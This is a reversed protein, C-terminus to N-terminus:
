KFPLMLQTLSTWWKKVDTHVKTLVDALQCTTPVWRMMKSNGLKHGWVQAEAHLLQRLAALDVMLRKEAPAKPGSIRHVSDFLSKCDTCSVVPLVERANAESLPIGRLTGALMARFAIADEWGELSAMTEAAFTSRCVRPCAHSKWSIVVPQVQEGRLVNRHCVLVLHGLQSYLGNMGDVYEIDEADAPANAWAADHFVLIVLDDFPGSQTFSLKNEKGVQAMKVVKNTERVDSFCPQKQKRQALSVGAQLDPRSQSALWSLAGITSQNDIKSVVDAPSAIDIGKPIDVTELRSNVYSEQSVHIGHEDQTIQSGVYEFDDEEWESIPFIAALNQKLQQLTEPAAALLLDDVHTLLAGHLEGQGDRLLFYCADLEHQVLKLKVGNVVIDLETLDRSLREWWLRPSTCLGFVGKIVEILAGEEVGPLGRVPQSFYLNRRAEDGNLFAAEIDGASLKWGKQGAVFMMTSFALRTGTPAETQLLGARLDPDRHGGICLRAKAKPPLNPDVRRKAVHKDRYAYRSTLIREKPVTARIHDSEEKSLVRVAQYKVHENWQKTEAAVYYEKEHEPIENWRVEKDLQKQFAKPMRVDEEIAELATAMLADQEGGQQDAAQPPSIMPVSMKTRARKAPVLGDGTADAFIEENEEDEDLQNVLKMLDEKMAKAQMLMGLEESEAHRLHERACLMCRGGRSVWFSDGEVGVITGPGVWEGAGPKLRAAGGANKSKRYVYVWDGPEFNSKLTRPRGLLARRLAAEAQSKIFAERAVQRINLQRARAEDPTALLEREMLQADEDLLGDGIRPEAGFVWKSPSYGHKRRMTNKSHCVQQLTWEVDDDTIACQDIVKEWINRFWANQREVPGNKWHAQGAVYEVRIGRQELEDTFEKMLGREQDVLVRHPAGAWALWGDLFAKALDSSKRGPLLRVVHYGSAIDLISIVNLKTKAPTHLVMTDIGLEHGFDMSVMVKAPRRTGPNLHRECVGCRLQHAAKVVEEKAGSLRLHRALDARRPHGLNQHLRRLAQATHKGVHPPFTIGTAEDQLNPDEPPVDGGSDPVAIGEGMDVDGDDDMPGRPAKAPTTPEYDGMGDDLPEEWGAEAMAQDFDPPEVTQTPYSFWPAGSGIIHKQYCKVVAMCFKESYAGAAKTNQGATPTHEHSHDCLKGLDQFGGHTCLLSTPKKLLGGDSVARLNFRCMDLDVFHFRPDLVLEQFSEDVWMDSYKPHEFVVEGGNALQLQACRKAFRVLKRQLARARRLAQAKGYYNLRQWPSWKTCPLAIWLVRPRHQSIDDLVKEQEEKKTLDHGFKVDRPELVTLGAKAFAQTLHATGAFLELLDVTNETVYSCQSALACVPATCASVVVCLAALAKSAWGKLRKRQVRRVRRKPLNRVAEYDDGYVLNVKPETITENESEVEKVAEYEIHPDGGAEYNDGDGIIAHNVAKYDQADKPDIEAGSGGIGDETDLKKDKKAQILEKVHNRFRRQKVQKRSRHDSGCGGGEESGQPDAVEGGLRPDGRRHEGDSWGVDGRLVGGRLTGPSEAEKGSDPDYNTHDGEQDHSKRQNRCGEDKANADRTDHSGTFKSFVKGWLWSAPGQAREHQIAVHSSPSRSDGEGPHRDRGGSMEGEISGSHVQDIGPGAKGGPRSTGHLSVPTRARDDSPRVRCGDGEPRRDSRCPADEMGVSVDVVPSTPLPSALVESVQPRLFRSRGIWLMQGTNKELSKWEHCVELMPNSTTCPICSSHRNRGLMNLLKEKIHVDSTNWSSPDFFDRRPTVHIRDLFIEGEIWFDRLLASDNWWGRFWEACLHTETLKTFVHPELKKPYFLPKEVASCSGASASVMYAAISPVHIETDEWRVAKPWPPTSGGDDAVGIAPLSTATTALPVQHLGLVSFDATHSPLDYKMGLAALVNRSLLLPVDTDLEAVKVLFWKGKISLWFVWATSSHFLKDGGFKFTESQNVKEFRHGKAKANEKLKGIWAVGALSRSCACDTIAQLLDPSAGGALFIECVHSVQTAPQSTHKNKNLPCEADRHWHGRKKCASCYSRAKAMRIREDKQADRSASGTNTGRARLISQYRSKANQFAVFAEHTDDDEDEPFTDDELDTPNEDDFIDDDANEAVHAHHPRRHDSPKRNEWLRRSMRDQIIAAEQLKVLSYVNGTSSLLNLEASNDLRLKDVYLWAMCLDPLSCGVEKLRSIQRDFEQNFERIEQNPGKKLVRFFELMCKGVKVVERDLYKDSIWQTFVAVGNECDLLSLDLEEADRWARGTLNNYLALAQKAPRLRTMRQWAAVKRLYGRTVLGDKDDDGSFEPVTIKDSGGTRDDDRREQQPQAWPDGRPFQGSPTHTTSTDTYWSKWSAFWTRWEEDTYQRGTHPEGYGSATAETAEGSATASSQDGEDGDPATNVTPAPM